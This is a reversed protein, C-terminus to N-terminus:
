RCWGAQLNWRGEWLLVGLRSGGGSLGTGMAGGRRTRRRDGAMPLGAGSRGVRSDAVVAVLSLSLASGVLAGGGQAMGSGLGRLM